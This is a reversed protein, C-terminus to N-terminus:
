KGRTTHQWTELNQILTTLSKAKEIFGAEALEDAARGLRDKVADIESIIRHLEAYDKDNKKM